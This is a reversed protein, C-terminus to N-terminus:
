KGRRKQLDARARQVRERAERLTDQEKDLYSKRADIIAVDHLWWDPQDLLGGPWPLFRWGFTECLSYLYLSVAPRLLRYQPQEWKEHEHRAKAEAEEVTKPESKGAQWARM